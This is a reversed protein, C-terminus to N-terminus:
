KYLLFFNFDINLYNSLGCFSLFIKPQDVILCTKEFDAIWVRGCIAYFGDKHNHKTESVYMMIDKKRYYCSLPLKTM